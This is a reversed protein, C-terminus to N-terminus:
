TIVLKSSITLKCHLSRTASHYSGILEHCIGMVWDVASGLQYCMIDKFGLGTRSVM